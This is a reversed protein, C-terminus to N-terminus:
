YARSITTGPFYAALITSADQGGRARGVAGWQCFGVGHGSGAGDAILHEVRGNERTETLQFLASRLTPEGVPRLVQRVAPGDVDIALRDLTVTVRGVRDSGTRRTVQVARVTAVQEAPTGVTAPLSRRLVGRLEDGTWEERWRFRPSIRCYAQGDGDADSTSVLYPRDAAAFVETGGATKGACTSFFFADIPTGAWTLIRGTTRVVAERSLPYEGALGTYVQDVVTALLDFGQSARKGLNRIAFTRSTIAQAELAALDSADRRGMEAGVVGLLYDEIGVINIASLGTRDRIVSLRGRYWTGGLAVLGGPSRPVFTVAVQGGLSWGGPGAAAVRSGHTRVRWVVGPEVSAATAGDGDLVTLGSDGAVDLSTAGLRLGIRIEPSPALPPPTLEPAEQPACTILLGILLLGLARGAASGGGPWATAHARDAM